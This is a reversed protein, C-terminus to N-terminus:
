TAPVYRQALVATAFFALFVLTVPASHGAVALLDVLVIGALLGSVALRLKPESERLALRLFPFLWLALLLSLWVATHRYEQANAFWALAVPAALPALLWRRVPGRLSEKRALYSLGAIYAALALGCWLALGSCGTAATSGAVLYLLFRCAAIMLPSLTTAKHVANYLGIGAVLLLTFVPHARAPVLLLLTGLALAAIGISLVSSPSARGSPIPRDRRHQQDFDQDFYDNLFTGALYLCSAGIMTWFLRSIRGGDSLLWAALCNSWVTPLNPLRALVLLTRGDPWSPHLQWTM